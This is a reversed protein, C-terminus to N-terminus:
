DLDGRTYKDIPEIEFLDGGTITAIREAVEKTVGSASFFSVLIKSM